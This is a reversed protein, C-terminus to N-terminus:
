LIRIRISASHGPSRIMYTKYSHNRNRKRKLSKYKLNLSTYKNKNKKDISNYGFLTLHEKRLQSYGARGFVYFQICGPGIKSFLSM